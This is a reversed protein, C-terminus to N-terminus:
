YSNRIVKIHLAGHVERTKCRSQVKVSLIDITQWSSVQYYGECERGSLWGGDGLTSWSCIWGNLNAIVAGVKVKDGVKLEVTSGPKYIHSIKSYEVRFGELVPSREIITIPFVPSLVIAIAGASLIFSGWLSTTGLRWPHLADFISVVLILLRTRFDKTMAKDIDLTRTIIECLYRWALHGSLLAMVSLLPAVITVPRCPFSSQIRYRGLIGLVALVMINFLLQVHLPPGTSRSCPRM